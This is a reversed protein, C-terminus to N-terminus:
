ERSIGGHRRHSSRAVHGRLVAVPKIQNAKIRARALGGLRKSTSVGFTRSYYDSLCHEASCVVEGFTTKKFSILLYLGRVHKSWCFPSCRFISEEFSDGYVISEIRYLRWRLSAIHRLGPGLTM